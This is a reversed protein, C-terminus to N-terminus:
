ASNRFYENKSFINCIMLNLKESKEYEALNFDPEGCVDVGIMDFQSLFNLLNFFEKIDMNGQEWNTNLCKKDLIDKDISVYIPLGGMMNKLTKFDKSIVVLKDNNEGTNNDSTFLFIKNLSSIKMVDRLWSGCSIYGEFTSKLDVHHDIVVLNFKINISKVFLYTFYHFDSKGLFKIGSISNVFKELEKLRDYSCLYRVQKFGRLDIVKGFRVLNRQNFYTDDFCFLYIHSKEKKYM